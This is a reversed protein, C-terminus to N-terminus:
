ERTTAGRVQVAGLLDVTGAFRGRRSILTPRVDILPVVLRPDLASAAVAIGLIGPATLELCPALSRNPLAVIAGAVAGASLLGELEHTALGLATLRTDGMMDPLATTIAARETSGEIFGSLAVLREAIARATPDTEDYAIRPPRQGTRAVNQAVGPISACYSTGQWWFPGAAPRAAGRVADRSVQQRLRSLWENEDSTGTGTRGPVVLAYTLTWPLTDIAYETRTRAYDIAAPDDAILADVGMDLQNRAGNAPTQRIRLVPAPPANAPTTAPVLLARTPSVAGSTRHSGAGLGASSSSGVRVPALAPHALIAIADDTQLELELVLTRGEASRVIAPVAWAPLRQWSARVDAATLPTGDAFTADDRLTITWLTGADRKWSEAIGARVRGECDVRVLTRHLHAYVFRESATTPRSRGAPAVADTLAVTLTDALAAVRDGILCADDDTRRAPGETPLRPGAPVCAAALALLIAFSSWSSSLRM